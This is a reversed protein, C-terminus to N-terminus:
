GSGATLVQQVIWDRREVILGHEDPWFMPPLEDLPFWGLAYNAPDIIVGSVQETVYLGYHSTQWYTKKFNQRALVGLPGVYQLQTLGTEEAIERLAAEALAEGPEVGGKPLVYHEDGLEVEKVLALLVGGGAVRAVAGGAGTRLRHGAPRTYWSADIRTM